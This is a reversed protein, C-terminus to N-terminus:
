MERNTALRYNKSSQGASPSTIYEIDIRLLVHNKGAGRKFEETDFVDAQLEESVTDWKLGTFLLFVDKNEAQAASLATNFDDYWVPSDTYCGTFFIPLFFTFLM